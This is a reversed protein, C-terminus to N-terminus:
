AHNNICAVNPFFGVHTGICTHSTCGEPAGQHEEQCKKLNSSTKEDSKHYLIIEVFIVSLKNKIKYFIHFITVEVQLVETNAAADIPVTGVYFTKDLVTDPYLPYIFEPANDNKDLVVIIVHAIQWTNQVSFLFIRDNWKLTSKVSIDM